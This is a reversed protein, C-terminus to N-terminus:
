WSQIAQLMDLAAVERSYPSRHPGIDTVRFRMLGQRCTLEIEDGDSLHKSLVFVCWKYFGPALEPPAITGSLNLMTWGLVFFPVWRDALFGIATDLVLFNISCNFWTNLWCEAWQSAALKWTEKFGFIILTFGGGIMCSYVLAVSWRIGINRWFSLRVYTGTAKHIGDAGMAGFFQSISSMVVTVTNIFIRSGQTTPRINFSTPAISNYLVRGVLPNSLNAKAFITSNAEFLEGNARLLLQNLNGSILSTGFAAYRVGDWTYAVARSANYKAADDADSVAAILRDTAGPYTYLAAWWDSNHCTETTLSEITPYQSVPAEILTPFTNNKMDAYALRLMSGTLLIDAVLSIFSSALDLM